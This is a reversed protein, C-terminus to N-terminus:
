LIKPKRIWVASDDPLALSCFVGALVAAVLPAVLHELQLYFVAEEPNAVSLRNVFWLAYLAGPNFISGKNPVGILFLPLMPINMLKTSLRNVSLLVPMVISITVYLFVVVLEVISDHVCDSRDYMIPQM